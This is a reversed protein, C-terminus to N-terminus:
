QYYRPPSAPSGYSDVPAAQPAGYSDQAPAGYTEQVPEYAPAPASYSPAAAEYQAPEEYSVAPAGYSDVPAGYSEQPAGYSEAPAGYAEAPAGYSQAPAGYSDAVEDDGGSLLNALIAAKLFAVKGLLIGDLLASGTIAPIAIAGLDLFAEPDAVPASRAAVLMSALFVTWKMNLINQKHHHHLTFPCL